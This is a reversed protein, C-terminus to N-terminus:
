LNKKIFKQLLVIASPSITHSDNELLHKEFNFNNKELFDCSEYFNNVLLVDDEKGHSIFLPTKLFNNNIKKKQIIKGSLIALGGLNENIYNGCEFTMIGGQSFGLIFCDSMKLKFKNKNINITNLIKKLSTNIESSIIEIEKVGAENIYVNNPYINFWQRGEPYNPLSTPANLSFYNFQNEKHHLAKAVNIFNDANDGYGHLMFILKKPNDSTAFTPGNLIESNNM